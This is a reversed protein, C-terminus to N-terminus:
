PRHYSRNPWSTHRPCSARPDCQRRGSSCTRPSTPLSQCKAVNTIYCHNACDISAGLFPVLNHSQQDHNFRATGASRCNSQLQCCADMYGANMTDPSTSRSAGADSVGPPACCTLNVDRRKILSIVQTGHLLHMPHPYAQADPPRISRSSWTPSRVRELPCPSPITDLQTSM